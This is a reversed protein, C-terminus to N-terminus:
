KNRIRIPLPEDKSRGASSVVHCVLKTITGDTGGSLWVVSVGDTESQTDIVGDGSEVSWVASVVTDGTVIEDSNLWDNFDRWWYDRENPDKERIETTM